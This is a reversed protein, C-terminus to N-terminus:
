EITNAVKGCTLMQSGYYPNKIDKEKSLWYSKKMPCYEEYVPTTSIKVGKALAYMNLSLAAFHERQHAIDQVESIHRADFSIKEQLPTFAKREEATLQAADVGKVANLLATAKQAAAAADSSVLADKVDYYLNLVNTLQTAAETGKNAQAPLAFLLFLAPIVMLRGIYSIISTRNINTAM